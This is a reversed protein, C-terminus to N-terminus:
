RRACALLIVVCCVTAEIGVGLWQQNYILALTVIAMLTVGISFLDDRITSM